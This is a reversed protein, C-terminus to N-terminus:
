EDCWVSAESFKAVVKDLQNLMHTLDDAKCKVSIKATGEDESMMDEIDSEDEVGNILDDLFGGDFGLLDLDFDNEGLDLVEGKLLGLDWGANLALQNDAIVLAKKQEESLGELVICPVEDLGALSAAESRGHGAIINNNEDILVPNTFGFEQISGVLQSVQKDSHTRPNKDYKVLDEIKVIKHKYHKSM